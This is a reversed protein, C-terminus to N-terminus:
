CKYRCYHLLHLWFNQAYFDGVDLSVATAYSVRLVTGMPAASVSSMFSDTQDFSSYEM